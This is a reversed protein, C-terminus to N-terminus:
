QFKWRAVRTTCLANKYRSITKRRHRHQQKRLYLGKL